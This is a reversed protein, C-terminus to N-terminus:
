IYMYIGYIISVLYIYVQQYYVMLPAMMKKAGCIGDEVNGDNLKPIFNIRHIIEPKCITMLAIMM